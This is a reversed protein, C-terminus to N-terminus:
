GLEIERQELAAEFAEHADVLEAAAISLYADDTVDCAARAADLLDIPAGDVQERYQDLTKPM